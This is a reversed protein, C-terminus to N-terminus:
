GPEEAQPHRKVSRGVGQPKNDRRLKPILGTCAGGAPQRSPLAGMGDPGHSYVAFCRHANQYFTVGLAYLREAFRNVSEDTRDTGPATYALTGAITEPPRPSQRECAFRLAIGFGTLRVEGTAENFLARPREGCVSITDCRRLLVLRRKM